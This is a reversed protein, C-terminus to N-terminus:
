GDWATSGVRDIAFGLFAVTEEERDFPDGYRWREAAAILDAWEPHDAKVAAASATKSAPAAGAVTHLIRCLNLM